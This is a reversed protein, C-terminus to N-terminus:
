KERERLGQRGLNGYRHYSNSISQEIFYHMLEIRGHGIFPESAIYLAKDATQEYLTESVNDSKLFRIREVQEV